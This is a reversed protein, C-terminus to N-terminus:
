QNRTMRVKLTITSGPAYTAQSATPTAAFNTALGEFNDGCVSPGNGSQTDGQNFRSSDAAVVQRPRPQFMNAHATAGRALRAACAAALLLALPLPTRASRAAM